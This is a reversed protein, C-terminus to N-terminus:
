RAAVRLRGNDVSVITVPTGAPLDPGEVRWLTDDLRIHGTGNAIATELVAPRGVQRRLRDNLTGATSTDETTGYFRRGLFAAIVAFVIFLLIEVQWGLDVALAIVGVLIAAMAFWLFFAGPAVVEVAALLIGIVWWTWPGLMQLVEVIM